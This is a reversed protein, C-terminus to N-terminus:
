FKPSEFLKIEEHNKQIRLKLEVEERFEEPIKDLIEKLSVRKKLRAISRTDSKSKKEKEVAKLIKTPKIERKYNHSKSTKRAWGAMSKEIDEILNKIVRYRKGERQMTCTLYIDRLEPNTIEAPDFKYLVDEEGAYVYKEAGTIMTHLTLGLSYIDDEFDRDIASNKQKPSSYLVDERVSKYNSISTKIMTNKSFGFDVLVPRDGHDVLINDPKIDGHIISKSHMVSIAQVIKYFCNSKERTTKGNCWDILNLSNVYEYIAYLIKPVTNVQNKNRSLFGRKGPVPPLRENKPKTHGLIKPIYAIHGYKEQLIKNLYKQVDISRLFLASSETLKYDQKEDGLENYKQLTVDKYFSYNKIIKPKEVVSINPFMFKVLVNDDLNESFCFYM